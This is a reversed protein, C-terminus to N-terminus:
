LGLDTLEHPKRVYIQAFSVKLCLRPVTERNAHFTDPSNKSFEFEKSIPLILLFANIKNLRPLIVRPYEQFELSNMEALAKRSGSIAFDSAL